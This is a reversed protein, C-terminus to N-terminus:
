FPLMYEIAQLILTYLLSCHFHCGLWTAYNIFLQPLFICKENLKLLSWTQVEEELLKGLRNWVTPEAVLFLARAFIASTTWSFAPTVFSWKQSNELYVSNFISSLSLGKYVNIVPPGKLEGLFPSTAPSSYLTYIYHIQIMKGLEFLLLVM